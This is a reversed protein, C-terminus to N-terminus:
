EKPFRTGLKWQIYQLNDYKDRKKYILQQQKILLHYGLHSTSVSVVQGSGKWGDLKSTPVFSTYSVGIDELRIM